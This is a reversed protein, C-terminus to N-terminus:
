VYVCGCLVVEFFLYKYLVVVSYSYFFRCCFHFGFHKEEEVKKRRGENVGIIGASSTSSCARGLVEAEAGM